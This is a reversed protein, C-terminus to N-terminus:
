VVVASTGAVSWGDAVLASPLEGCGDKKCDWACEVLETEHRVRRHRSSGRQWERLELECKCGNLYDRTALVLSARLTNRPQLLGVAKSKRPM